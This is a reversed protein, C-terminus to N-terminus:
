PGFNRVVTEPTDMSLGSMKRRLEAKRLEANLREEESTLASIKEFMYLNFAALCCVLAWFLGVVIAGQGLAYLVLAAFACAGVGNGYRAILKMRSPM